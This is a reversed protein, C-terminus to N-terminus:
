AARGQRGDTRTHPNSQYDPLKDSSLPPMLYIQRALSGVWKSFREVVAYATLSSSSWANIAHDYIQPTCGGATRGLYRVALRVPEQLDWLDVYFVFAYLGSFRGDSELLYPVVKLRPHDDWQVNVYIRSRGLSSDMALTARMTSQAQFQLKIMRLSTLAAQPDSLIKLFEGLVTMRDRRRSTGKALEPPLRFRLSTMMIREML